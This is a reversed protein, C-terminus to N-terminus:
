FLHVENNILSYYAQEKICLNASSNTLEEIKATFAKTKLVPVLLDLTVADTYETSLVPLDERNIYYQIKGILNYDTILQIRNGLEKKIVISKELGKIVAAQYAKVLGGTGLLTGGFYRTVVAAINTLGRASLVDLMPKGATRSPEGDDNFRMIPNSGIGAIFAYCNHSADWFRKRINEIFLMAEEESEVPCLSAIFRSKKVVIEDSADKYITYFSEVPQEM